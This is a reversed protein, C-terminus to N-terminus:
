EKEKLNQEAPKKDSLTDTVGTKLTQYIKWIADEQKQLDGKVYVFFGDTTADKGTARLYKMLQETAAIDAPKKSKGSVETSVSVKDSALNASANVDTECDFGSLYKDIDEIALVIGNMKSAKNKKDAINSAEKYLNFLDARYGKVKNVHNKYIDESLIAKGDAHMYAEFVKNAFDAPDVDVDGKLVETYEQNKRADNSTGQKYTSTIDSKFSACGCLALLALGTTLLKRM